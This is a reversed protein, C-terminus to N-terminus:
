ETIEVMWHMWLAHLKDFDADRREITDYNIVVEVQGVVLCINTDRPHSYAVISRIFRVDVSARHGSTPNAHFIPSENQSMEPERM